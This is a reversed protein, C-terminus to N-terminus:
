LVRVSFHSVVSSLIFAIFCITMLTGIYELETLNKLLLCVLFAVGLVIKLKGHSDIWPEEYSSFLRFELAKM